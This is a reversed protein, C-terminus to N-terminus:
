KIREYYIALTENGYVSELVLGKDTLSKVTWRETDGYSDTITVYGPEIKYTFSTTSKYGEDIDEMVGTGNAKIILFSQYGAAAGWEDDWESGDEDAYYSKYVEWTGVLNDVTVEKQKDKDKKCGVFAVLSLALMAYVLKKMFSQNKPAGRSGSAMKAFLFFHPTTPKDSYLNQFVWTVFLCYGVGTYSFRASRATEDM